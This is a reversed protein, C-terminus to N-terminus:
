AAGGAAAAPLHITFTSGKGPASDVTVRGGHGEVIGRVTALGLGSGTVGAASAEPSRFFPEFLHPLDGRRIGIGRDSVALTVETGAPGSAARARVGIWRAPGGYKLANDVLNALAQRLAPEDGRVDPLPDSLDTEVHVRKEELVWRADSLVADVLARVPVPEKRFTQTGSRLGAFALVRGVMETLRRGEREILAGYRKVKEPDDVIGDALNQGASRVATLPTKLEHSVAAVFDLQQRALAQARRTSVVLLAASTGLLALVALSIALNRRRAVAVAAELSGTPHRVELVWRGVEPGRAPATDRGEPPAAERPSQAERPERRPPREAAADTLDPFTRLAFLPRAADKKGEPGGAAVPPGARFVVTGPPASVAVTLAYALGGRGGFEREALRPLFVETLFARDLRVVVHFRPPRREGTEPEGERAPPRRVPLVLGPLSEDLQSVRGRAQFIRQVSALDADWPVPVLRGGAEELRSVEAEGRDLRTVVLLEKVLKPEPAASRWRGLRAVLDTALEREDLGDGPQFTRSARTLERDLGDAFRSAAADVGAQLREREAESLRAIWRYQLVALAALAALLGAGIALPLYPKPGRGRV